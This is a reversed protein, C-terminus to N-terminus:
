YKKDTWHIIKGLYNDTNFWEFFEDISNFGDNKALELMRNYGTHKGLINKYFIKDDVYVLISTGSYHISIRQTSICENSPAFRKRDKSTYRGTFYDIKRGAKWRNSKDERITHIKSWVLIPKIFQSKFSLIM